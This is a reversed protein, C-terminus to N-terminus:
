YIFKSQLHRVEDELVNIKAKATYYPPPYDENKPTSNEISLKLRYLSSLQKKLRLVRYENIKQKIKKFM